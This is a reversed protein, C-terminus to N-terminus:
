AFLLPEDSATMTFRNPSTWFDVVVWVPGQKAFSQGFDTGTDSEYAKVEHMGNTLSMNFPMWNHEDEVPAARDFVLVGDVWVKIHATPHAFSQNSVYFQADGGVTQGAPSSTCGSALLLCFFAAIRVLLMM